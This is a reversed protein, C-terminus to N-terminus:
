CHHPCHILRCHYAHGVPFFGWPVDLFHQLSQISFSVGTPVGTAPPWPFSPRPMGLVSGRHGLGLYVGSQLCTSIHLYFMPKVYLYWIKYYLLHLYTYFFSMSTVRQNTFINQLIETKAMNTNKYLLHSFHPTSVTFDCVLSKDIVLWWSM